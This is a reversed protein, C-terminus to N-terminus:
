IETSICKEQYTQAKDGWDFAAFITGRGPTLLKYNLFNSKSEGEM